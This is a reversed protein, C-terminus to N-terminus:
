NSNSFAINVNNIIGSVFNSSGNGAIYNLM